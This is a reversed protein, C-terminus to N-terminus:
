RAGNSVSASNGPLPLAPMSRGLCSLTRRMTIAIFKGAIKDGAFIPIFALAAIREARVLEKLEGSLDDAKEIDDICIPDAVQDGPKWPSHGDVARRYEDSLARWAAFRM